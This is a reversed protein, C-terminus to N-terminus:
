DEDLFYEQYIEQFTPNGKFINMAEYVLQKLGAQSDCDLIGFEIKECVKQWFGLPNNFGHFNPQNKKPFSLRLLLDKAIHEEDFCEALTDILGIKALDSLTVKPQPPNPISPQPTESPSRIESWLEELKQRDSTQLRTWVRPAADRPTEIETVIQQIVSLLEEDTSWELVALIFLSPLNNDRILEELVRDIYKDRDSNVLELPIANEPLGARRADASLNGGSQYLRKLCSSNLQKSFTIRNPDQFESRRNM